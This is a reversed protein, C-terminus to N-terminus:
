RIIMHSNRCFVIHTHLLNYNYNCIAIQRTLNDHAVPLYLVSYAHISPFIIHVPHRPCVDLRELPPISSKPVFELYSTFFSIDFIMHHIMAPFGFSESFSLVVLVVIFGYDTCPFEFSKSPEAPILISERM